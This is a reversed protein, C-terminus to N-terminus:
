QSDRPVRVEIWGAPPLREVESEGHRVSVALRLSDSAEFSEPPLLVELGADTEVTMDPLVDVVRENVLLRIALNGLSGATNLRLRLGNGDLAYDVSSVLLHGQYMAGHGGKAEYSGTSTAFDGVPEDGAPSYLPELLRSPAKAGVLAAAKLLRGRFLADFERANETHFDGGYWWFWDSGQASWVLRRARELADSDIEGGAEAETVLARVEGLLRWALNDVPQGIWIRFNSEIWSGSHLREIRGTPYRTADSMTVTEFRDGIARYLSDLFAEGKGEYHEWANEGDLIIPILAGPLGAEKARADAEDVLSLFDAVADAVPMKAYTFGIRDSLTRDRFSIRVPGRLTDTQWAQYLLGPHAPPPKSRFLNGEDTALWRVGHEAFVELAEPSVSGEAPWMGAPSEGFAEEHARKALKVQAQADPEFSMRAPLPADPMARRAVHTDCLLPLIPHYYPTTSLEVQGREALTKWRGLVNSLINQQADFLARKDDESFARGKALLGRVVDNEARAAFGMWALNFLVQLDRLEDHTFDETSKRREFLEAYRPLPRVGREEDIMFFQRVIFARDAASLEEPRARFLRLFREPAEGGAAQELQKVLVPVFNVTAKVRPHRELMAAMDNYSHTAHLRVWPLIVEGTDADTYEPQHMHWLFAIRTPM